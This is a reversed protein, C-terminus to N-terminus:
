AGAFVCVPIGTWDPRSIARGDRGRWGRSSCRKGGRGRVRALRHARAERHRRADPQPLINASFGRRPQPSAGHGRRPSEAFV